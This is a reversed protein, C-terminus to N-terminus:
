RVLPDVNCSLLQTIAKARPLVIKRLSREKIPDYVELTRLLIELTIQAEFQAM